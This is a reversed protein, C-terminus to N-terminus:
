AVYEGLVRVAIENLASRQKPSIRQFRPLDTIFRREWPRLDGPRNALAACTARWTAILPEDKPPTSIVDEWTLGRTQLIRQAGAAAAEREAATGPRAWLLVCAILRERDRASLATM